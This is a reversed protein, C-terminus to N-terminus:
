NTIKVRQKMLEEEIDVRPANMTIPSYAIVAADQALIDKTAPDLLQVYHVLAFPSSGWNGVPIPITHTKNYGAPLSAKAKTVWKNSQPVGIYWEFAVPNTTPNTINLTVMMTDGTSYSSKDTNISVVYPPLQGYHLLRNDSLTVWVDDSGSGWVANAPPIAGFATINQWISGDFHYVRGSTWRDRWGVVYIDNKSSGWIGLATGAYSSGYGPPDSLVTGYKSGWSGVKSGPYTENFRWVRIGNVFNNSGAAYLHLLGMDDRMGWADYIDCFDFGRYFTWTNGDWLWHGWCDTVYIENRSVYALQDSWSDGFSGSEVKWATGNYRLITRIGTGTIFTAYVNGYEGGFDYFYGQIEGPPSQEIWNLGNYHYIIPKNLASNYGSAFIDSPGTGFIRGNSIGPLNLEQSWIGGNLHYLFSGTTSEVWVYLNDPQDTWLKGLTAGEPLGPITVFNWTSTIETAQAPISIVLLLLYIIGFNICHTRLNFKLNIGGRVLKLGTKLLVVIKIFFVQGLSVLAIM